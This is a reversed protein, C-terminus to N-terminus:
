CIRCTARRGGSVRGHPQTPFRWGKPANTPAQTSKSGLRRLRHKCCAELLTASKACLALGSMALPVKRRTTKGSQPPRHPDPAASRKRGADTHPGRGSGRAPGLGVMGAARPGGARSTRAGALHVRVEPPARVETASRPSPDTRGWIYFFCSCPRRRRRAGAPRAAAAAPLDVTESGVRTRGSSNNPTHDGATPGNPKQRPDPTRWSSSREPKARTPPPRKGRRLPARKLPPAPAQGCTIWLRLLLIPQPNDM